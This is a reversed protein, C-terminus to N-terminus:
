AQTSATNGAADSFCVYFAYAGAAPGIPLTETNAPPLAVFNPATVTSCDLPTSSRKYGTTDPATTYTLTVQAANTVAPNVVGNATLTMSGSPTVTDLHITRQAPDSENGAPDRYKVFVIQDGDQPALFWTLPSQFPQYVAGTFGSDNSVKVLMNVNNLGANADSVS